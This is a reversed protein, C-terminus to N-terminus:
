CEPIKTKQYQVRLSRKCMNVLLYTYAPWIGFFQHKLVTNNSIARSLGKSLLSILGTLGSPFLGQVNMPLVSTSASAGFKPWNICLALKNSFVRISPFISPLLVLLRCLFLHNSPMMSEISKLRPTPSLCLLWTHQLGHPRLSDSMVSCSFLLQKGHVM